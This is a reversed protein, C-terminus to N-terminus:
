TVPADVVIPSDNDADGKDEFEVTIVPDEISGEVSDEIPNEEDTVACVVTGTDTGGTPLAERHTEHRRLDGSSNSCGM